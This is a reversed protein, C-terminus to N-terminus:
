YKQRVEGALAFSSNEGKTLTRKSNGTSCFAAFLKEPMAVEEEIGCIQTDDAYEVDGLCINVIGWGCLKSQGTRSLRGDVKCQWPLGTNKQHPLQAHHLYPHSCSIFPVRGTVRTGHVMSLLLWQPHIGPVAHTRPPSKTNPCLIAPSWASGVFDLTCDQLSKARVIDFNTIAIRYYETIM